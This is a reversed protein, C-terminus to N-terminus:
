DEAENDSRLENFMLPVVIIEGITLSHWLACYGDARLGRAMTLNPGM